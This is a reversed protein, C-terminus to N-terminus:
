KNQCKHNMASFEPQYIKGILKFCQRGPQNREGQKLMYMKKKNLAIKINTDYPM